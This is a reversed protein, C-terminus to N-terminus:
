RDQAPCILNFDCTRCAWGPNAAFEGASIGDAVDRIREMAEAREHGDPHVPTYGGDLIYELVAARPEIAWAAKAGEIYTVLVLRGADTERQPKRGSKYDVLQHGGAPHSDIRDIRGHVVHPGVKLTFAREVGVPRVGSKTVRELYGPIFKHAREMAQIGVATHSAGRRDM